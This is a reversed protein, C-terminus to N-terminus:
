KTNGMIIQVIYEREEKSKKLDTEKGDSEKQKNKQEDTTTKKAQIKSLMGSLVDAEDAILVAKDVVEGDFIIKVVGTCVHDPNKVIFRYKTYKNVRYILEFEEWSSPICPDMTIYQGTKKFGLVAEVGVRYMWSASGTYWTWGGRGALKNASYIDAACVYPEVKYVNLIDPETTHSIPNIMQFLDFARDGRGSIANALVVWLAAHTYQAGNERVGPLYGKIYGPNHDTKDFPPHLLKILKHESDVLYKDV